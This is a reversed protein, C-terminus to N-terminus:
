RLGCLRVLEDQAAAKAKNWQALSELKRNIQRAVKRGERIAVKLNKVAQRKRSQPKRM